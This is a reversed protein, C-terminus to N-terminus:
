KNWKRKQECFLENYNTNHSAKLEKRLEIISDNLYQFFDKSDKERLLELSSIRDNLRECEYEYDM